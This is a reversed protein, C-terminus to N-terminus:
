NAQGLVGERMERLAGECATIIADRDLNDQAEELIEELAAALEDVLAVCCRWHRAWRWCEPFHTAPVHDVLPM